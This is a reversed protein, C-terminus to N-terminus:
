FGAGITLVPGSGPEARGAIRQRWDLTVRASGRGLPLGIGVGPGADLRGAGRQVAGWMGAGLDLVAPGADLIPRMVRAQGEAFGTKARGGVWGAQGYTELRFREPLAVEGGGFVGAAPAVPSSGVRRTEVFATVPAATPRWQAGLALEAPGRTLPTAARAFVAVRRADDLAYTLRAGAQSAGLVPSAAAGLGRAGPGPRTVLWAALNWRTSAPAVAAVAAGVPDGPARTARGPALSFDERAYDFPDREVFYHAGFLALIQADRMLGPMAAAVNVTKVSVGLPAVSVAPVTAMPAVGPPPPTAVPGAMRVPLPVDPWLLAARGAIWAGTVVLLFGLPRGRM